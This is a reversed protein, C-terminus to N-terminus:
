DSAEQDIFKIKRLSLEIALGSKKLKLFRVPFYNLEPASWIKSKDRDDDLREVVLTDYEGIPLEIREKGTQKFRYQKIRGQHAVPYQFETSGDRLEFLLAIQMVLKDLTGDPMETQWPDAASINEVHATTWNFILHLNDDADGDENSSQYELVQIQNNTFRWRSTAYSVKKDILSAIGVSTSKQRYLFDGNDLKHLSFSAEAIPIGNVRADYIANFEPYPQSDTASAPSLFALMLSVILLQLHNALFSKAPVCLSIKMDVYVPFARIPQM